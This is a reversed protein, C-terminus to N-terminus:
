EPNDGRRFKKVERVDHESSNTPDILYELPVADMGMDHNFQAFAEIVAKEAKKRGAEGLMLATQAAEADRRSNDKEKFQIVQRVYESNLDDLEAVKNKLSLIKMHAGKHKKLLEEFGSTWARNIRKLRKNESAIATIEKRLSRKENKLSLIENYHLEFLRKSKPREITEGSLIDRNAVSM